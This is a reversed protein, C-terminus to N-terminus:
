GIALAQENLSVYFPRALLLRNSSSASGIRKAVCGPPSCRTNFRRAMQEDHSQHTLEDINPM